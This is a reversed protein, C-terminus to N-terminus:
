EIDFSGTEIDVYYWFLAKTTSKDRVCIIYRGDKDLGDYSYYVSDDEGWNNQVIEKAQEVPDDESSTNKNEEKKNEEENQEEEKDEDKKKEEEISNTEKVNIDNSVTNVTKDNRSMKMGFYIGAAFLAIVVICFLIKKSM